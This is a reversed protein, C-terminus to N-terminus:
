RRAARAALGRLAADAAGRADGEAARARAHRFLFWVPAAPQACIRALVANAEPPPAALVWARLEAYRGAALLAQPVGAPGPQGPAAPEAPPLLGELLRWAAEPKAAGLLLRAAEERLAPEASALRPIAREVLDARGLRGASRLFQRAM